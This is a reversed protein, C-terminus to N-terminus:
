VTVIHTGETVGKMPMEKAACVLLPTVLVKGALGHLGEGGYSALPTVEVLGDGKVEVGASALWKAYEASLLQRATDPSDDSSGPANKVPAFEGAREVELVAMHRAQPFVDFIFSELKIGTNGRGAMQEKSLTRGTDPDAFPIGKRAVHYVKPLSEPSCHTALFETNYYHICLNGANYVLEHTLPDRLEATAKDMESYEVVTHGEGRVCLVGVKEHPGAKACVKSGIDAGSELCYGLFLPDAVKVVANDVAFVHVGVVGRRQLDAVVGQTHLARYIGGNGDPAEAVTHGNELMIKGEPTLCPLTGQCFFMVDTEPLGFNGQSAFYARTDADTMPSTMVYLPLSVSAGKANGTVLEKLKQMRHVQMHFLSHHSPMGVDYEGKPRDFGLRTGQGGALILVGIQGRCIADFGKARWTSLVAPSTDKMKTVGAPPKLAGESAPASAAGMTAAFLDNALTVPLTALRDCLAAAEAETVMGRDIFSFVHGQGADEYLSRLAPPVTFTTSASMAVVASTSDFSM